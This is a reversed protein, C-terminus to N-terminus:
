SKEEVGETGQCAARFGCTCRPDLAGAMGLCDDLHGGYKRLADRLEAERQQAAALQDRLDNAKAGNELAQLFAGDWGRKNFAADAQAESLATDVKPM